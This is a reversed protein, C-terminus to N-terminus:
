NWDCLDGRLVAVSSVHLASETILVRGADEGVDRCRCGIDFEALVEQVSECARDCSDPSTERATAAAM